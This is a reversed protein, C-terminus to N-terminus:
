ARILGSRPHPNGPDLRLRNDITGADAERDERLSARQLTGPALVRTGPVGATALLDVDLLDDGRHSRRHQRGSQRERATLRTTLRSIARPQGTSGVLHPPVDPCPGSEGHVGQQTLGPVAWLQGLHQVLHVDQDVSRELQCSAGEGQRPPSATVLPDDVEGRGQRVLWVRADRRGSEKEIMFLGPARADPGDNIEDHEDWYDGLTDEWANTTMASSDPELAGLAEFDDDAALIVKRFLANRVM